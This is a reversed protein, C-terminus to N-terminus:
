QENLEIKGMFNKFYLTKGHHSTLLSLPLYNEDRGMVESTSAHTMEGKHSIQQKKEKWLKIICTCKIELATQILLPEDIKLVYLIHMELSYYISM